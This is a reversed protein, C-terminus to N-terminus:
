EDDAEYLYEDINELASLVLEISGLGIGTKDRILLLLTRRPFRMDDFAQLAQQIEDAAGQLEDIREELDAPKMKKESMM